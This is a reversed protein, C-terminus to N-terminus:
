PRAVSSIMAPHLVLLVTSDTADPAVADVVLDMERRVVPNEMSVEVLRVVPDIVLHVALDGMHAVLDVVLRVVPDEMPVEVLRAALDEMSAEELHVVPDVVLHVALDVVLRAVPGETSTVVLRAALDDMLVVELHVALDVVLRAVPGETSTVVLRAALDDMLVVELHVVRDVVLDMVLLVALDEASAMEPLAVQDAVLDVAHATPAELHGGGNMDGNRDRSRSRGRPPGPPGPPGGMMRPSMPRGPGGMKPSRPEGLRPSTMDRGNNTMRIPAGVRMAAYVEGAELEQEDTSNSIETSKKAPFGGNENSLANNKINLYQDYIAGGSGRRAKFTPAVVASTEGGEM